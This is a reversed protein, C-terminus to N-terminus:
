LERWVASSSPAKITTGPKPWGNFPNLVNNFMLLVWKYQTTGYLRSSILDPRGALIGRIEINLLEENPLNDLFEFRKMLAPVNNGKFNIIPTNKFRSTSGYIAM